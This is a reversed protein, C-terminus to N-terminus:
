SEQDQTSASKTADSISAPVIKQVMQKFLPFLLSQTFVDGFKKTEMLTTLGPDIPVRGFFPISLETALLEGGGSSFVNTCESCYPCVFGSMNEVLGIIKVGVKNCFDIERRVDM